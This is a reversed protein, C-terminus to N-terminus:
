FFHCPVFTACIGSATVHERLWHRSLHNSGDLEPQTRGFRHLTTTLKQVETPSQSMKIEIHCDVFSSGIFGCHVACQCSLLLGTSNLLLVLRAHFGLVTVIPRSWRWGALSRLCIMGLMAVEASHCVPLCHRICVRLELQLSSMPPVPLSPM